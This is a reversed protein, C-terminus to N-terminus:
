KRVRRIEEPLPTIGQRRDAPHNLKLFETAGPTSRPSRPMSIQLVTRGARDIEGYLTKDELDEAGVGLLFQLSGKILVLSGAETRDRICVVVRM